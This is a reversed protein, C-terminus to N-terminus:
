RSAVLKANVFVGGWPVVGGEPAVNYMVKYMVNYM